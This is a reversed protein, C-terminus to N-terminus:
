YDDYEKEEREKIRMEKKRDRSREKFEKKAMTQEIKWLVALQKFIDGLELNNSSSMADDFHDDVFEKYADKSELDEIRVEEDRNDMEEEEDLDDLTKKKKSRLKDKVKKREQKKSKREQSKQKPVVYIGIGVGKRTCQSRTGFNWYGRPLKEQDGCYLKKSDKSRRKLEARSPSPMERNNNNSFTKLLLKNSKFLQFSRDKSRGISSLMLTIFNVIVLQM